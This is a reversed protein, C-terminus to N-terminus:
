FPLDDAAAQKTKWAKRLEDAVLQGGGNSKVRLDTRWASGRSKGTREDELQDKQIFLLKFDDGIRMGRIATRFGAKEGFAWLEGATDRYEYCARFRGENFDDPIIFARTLKGALETGPAPEVFEAREFQEEAGGTQLTTFGDADVTSQKKNKGAM